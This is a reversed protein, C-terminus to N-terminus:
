IKVQAVPVIQGHQAEMAVLFRDGSGTGGERRSSESDARRSSGIQGSGTIPAL